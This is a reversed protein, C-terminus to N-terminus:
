AKEINNEKLYKILQHKHMVTYQLADVQEQIKHDLAEVMTWSMPNLLEPYKTMGYAVQERHAERTEEDPLRDRVERYIANSDIAAEIAEKSVGHHKKPINYRVDQHNNNNLKEGHMVCYEKGIESFETCGFETCINQFPM